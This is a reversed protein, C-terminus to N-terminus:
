FTGFHSELVQIVEDVVCQEVHSIKNDDIHWAITCQKGNIIKNAICVDYPNLEFGLQQLTESYLNYWLIAAELCGYISHLAHTYLTKEGKEMIMTPRFEPNVQCMIEAFIGTLKLVLHENRAPLEPQLFAGTVDFTAVKRQEKADIILTTLLGDLSVM